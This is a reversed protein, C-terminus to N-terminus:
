AESHVQRLIKEATRDEVNWDSLRGRVVNELGGLIKDFDEYTPKKKVSKSRNWYPSKCTKNACVNPQKVRGKLIRPYWEYGCRMCRLKEVQVSLTYVRPYLFEEKPDFLTKSLLSRM